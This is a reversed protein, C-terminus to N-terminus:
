YLGILNQNFELFIGTFLNQYGLESSWHGWHDFNTGCLCQSFFIIMIRILVRVRCPNYIVIYVLM